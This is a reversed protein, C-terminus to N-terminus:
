IEISRRHIEVLSLATPSVFSQGSGNLVQFKLYRPPAMGPAFLWQLDQVYLENYPSPQPMVPHGNDTWSGAAYLGPYDIKSWITGDASFSTIININGFGSPNAAFAVNLMLHLGVPGNVDWDYVAGPPSVTSNALTALGTIPYAIPPSHLLRDQRIM